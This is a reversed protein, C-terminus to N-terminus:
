TRKHCFLCRYTAPHKEPLPMIKGAGHCEGCHTEAEKKDITLLQQHNQDHPLHPTTEPPANWLLLFIGGCIAIFLLNYFLINKKKKEEAM